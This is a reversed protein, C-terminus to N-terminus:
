LWRKFALQAATVIAFIGLLSIGARVGGAVILLVAVVIVILVTLPSPLEYDGRLFM